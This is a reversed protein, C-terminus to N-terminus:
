PQGDGSESIKLIEYRRNCNKSKPYMKIAFPLQNKEFFSNIKQWKALETTKPFAVRDAAHLIPMLKKRFENFQEAELATGAYTDMFAAINEAYTSPMLFYEHNEPLGLWHGQRLIYADPGNTDFESLIAEYEAALEGMRRLSLWNYFYRRGAYLGRWIGTFKRLAAAKKEDYFEASMFIDAYPQSLQYLVYNVYRMQYRLQSLRRSFFLRDRAHLYVKITEDAQIRRRGLMQIMSEANDLLIFIHKVNSDFINVGVDLKATALLVRHSFKQETVLEAELEQGHESYASESSYLFVDGGPMNKKLISRIEKGEAISSVFILIKEDSPLESIIQVIEQNHYFWLFHYGGYDPEIRTYVYSEFMGEKALFSQASTQNLYVALIPYLNQMTASMFILQRNRYNQVLFEFSHVTNPNFLSDAIFYHSEDAVVIDFSNFYNIDAVNNTVLAMELTQYTTIVFNGPEKRLDHMWFPQTELYQEWDSVRKRQRELMQKQLVIRNVLYLIRKRQSFAYDKYTTEFFTTKGSGTPVDLIIIQGARWTKYDSGIFDSFYMQIKGGKKAKLVTIGSGGKKNTEPQLKIKSGMRNKEEEM